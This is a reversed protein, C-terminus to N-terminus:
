GLFSGERTRKKTPSKFTSSLLTLKEQFTAFIGAGRTIIVSKKNQTSAEISSERM